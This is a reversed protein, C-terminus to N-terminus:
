STVGAVIELYLLLTIALSIQPGGPVALPAQMSILGLAAFLGGYLLSQSRPSMRHTLRERLLCVGLVGAALLAANNLLQFALYPQHTWNM